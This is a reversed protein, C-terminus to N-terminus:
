LTQIGESFPKMMQFINTNSKIESYQPRPAKGIKYQAFTTPKILDENLQFRSAIIKGAEYPSLSRSGVIHYIDPKYNALLYKLSYGIDDIFTPTISSDQVMQLEKKETLLQKIRIAFDPKKSTPNGYPYSIRVIMAKGNVIKEGEYKTQAYYGLPNPISDETYPPTTGDFVFDTSIYIMKRNKETVANFINQTGMVNIKHALEKETEAGEVNTYAALHLIIDFELNKIKNNVSEANTIDVESHSLSLFTFDNKLLEIIRSGVLGTSGTIAVKIM